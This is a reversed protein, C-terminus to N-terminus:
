KEAAVKEQREKELKEAAEREKAADMTVLETLAKIRAESDIRCLIQSEPVLRLNRKHSVKPRDFGAGQMWAVFDGGKADVVLRGVALVRGEFTVDEAGEPAMIRGEAKVTLAVSEVLVLDRFPELFDNVYGPHRTAFDEPIKVKNKDKWFASPILSKSM